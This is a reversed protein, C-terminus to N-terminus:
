LKSITAQSRDCRKCVSSSRRAESQPSLNSNSMLGTGALAVWSGETPADASQVVTPSLIHCKMTRWYVM